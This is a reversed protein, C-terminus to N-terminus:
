GRKASETPLLALAHDLSTRDEETPSFGLSPAVKGLLLLLCALELGTLEVRRSLRMSPVSFSVLCPEGREIRVERAQGSELQRLVSRVLRARSRAYIVAPDRYLAFLKNRSYLTPVAAMAVTLAGTLGGGLASAHAEAM